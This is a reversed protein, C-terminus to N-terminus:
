RCTTTATSRWRLAPVFPTPCKWTVSGCQQREKTSSFTLKKVFWDSFYIQKFYCKWNISSNLTVDIQMKQGKHWCVVKTLRPQNSERHGSILLVTSFFRKATEMRRGLGWLGRCYWLEGAGLFQFEAWNLSLRKPVIEKSASVYSRLKVCKELTQIISCLKSIPPTTIQCFHFKKSNVQAWKLPWKEALKPCFVRFSM